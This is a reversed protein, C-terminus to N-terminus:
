TQRQRNRLMPRGRVSALRVRAAAYRGRKAITVDTAWQGGAAWYCHPAGLVVLVAAALTGVIRVM